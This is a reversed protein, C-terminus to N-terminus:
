KEVTAIHQTLKWCIDAPFGKSSRALLNKTPLVVVLLSNNALVVAPGSFSNYNNINVDDIHDFHETVESYLPPDPFQSCTMGSEDDLYGIPVVAALYPMCPDVSSPERRSPQRLGLQQRGLQRHGLQRRSM